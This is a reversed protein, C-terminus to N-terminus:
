ARLIVSLVYQSNPFTKQSIGELRILDVDLWLEEAVAMMNSFLIGFNLETYKGLQNSKHRKSFVHIRNDYVVFRWPQSNMSSPALRGAELLQNMWLRPKEKYVCLEKLDMRKAESIKRTYGGKSKGFAVLCVLTKDNRKRMSPKMVKMGVYCSGLGHSCLYLVMQQMIYGANMMCKEQETTYLALYYPARVSALGIGCKNDKRKDVIVLDTEIGTFLGEVEQYFKKIGDLVKVSVVDQAFSRVSKRAYVAEYLNM